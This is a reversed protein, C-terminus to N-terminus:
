KGTHLWHAKGSGPELGVLILQLHFAATIDSRPHPVTCPRTTSFYLFFGAQSELIVETWTPNNFIDETLIFKEWISIKSVFKSLWHTKKIEHPLRSIAM